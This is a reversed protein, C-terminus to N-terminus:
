KESPKNNWLMLELVSPTCEVAALSSPERRRLAFCIGTRTDMRYEPVITSPTPFEAKHPNGSNRGTALFSILVILAGALLMIWTLRLATFPM